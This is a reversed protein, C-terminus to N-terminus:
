NWLLPGETPGIVMAFTVWSWPEFTINLRRMDRCDRSVAEETTWGFRKILPTGDKIVVVERGTREKCAEDLLWLISKYRTTSGEPSRDDCASIGWAYKYGRQYIGRFRDMLNVGQKPDAVLYPAKGDDVLYYNWLHVLYSATMGKYNRVFYWIFADQLNMPESHLNGYCLRATMLFTASEPEVNSYNKVQINHAKKFVEQSYTHKRGAPVLNTM